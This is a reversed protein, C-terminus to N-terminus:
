CRRTTASITGYYLMMICVTTGQFTCIDQGSWGDLNLGAKEVWPGLDELWGNNAFTQFEFSALHVIDPPTGGAVADDDHRLLRQARGQDM